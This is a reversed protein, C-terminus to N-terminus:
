EYLRRLRDIADSAVQGNLDEWTNAVPLGCWKRWFNYGPLGHDRGRAINRAALDHGFPAGPSEFLHNTVQEDVKRDFRQINQDCLGRIVQDIRGTQHLIFPSFFSQKLNQSLVSRHNPDMMFLTGQVLTHGFRYAATAFVNAITPNRNSDYGDFYGDRKLLLNFRELHDRGLVVPLYENYAVHQLM